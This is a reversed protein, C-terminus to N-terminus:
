DADQSSARKSESDIHHTGGSEDRQELDQAHKLIESAVNTLVRAYDSRGECQARTALGAPVAGCKISIAQTDPKPWM